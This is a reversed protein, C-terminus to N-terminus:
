SLKLPESRNYYLIAEDSLSFDVIDQITDPITEIQPYILAAYTSLPNM